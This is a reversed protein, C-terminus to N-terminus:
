YTDKKIKKKKPDLCVKEYEQDHTKILEKKLVLVVEQVNRSSVMDMAINLSKRRVDIDPSFFFVFM